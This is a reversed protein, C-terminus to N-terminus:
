RMQTTYQVKYVPTTPISSSGARQTTSHWKTHLEKTSTGHLIHHQRTHHQAPAFLTQATSSQATMEAQMPAVPHVKAFAHIVILLRHGPELDLLQSEATSNPWRKTPHSGRLQATHPLQELSPATSSSPRMELTSQNITWLVLKQVHDQPTFCGTKEGEALQTCICQGKFVLMTAMDVQSLVSDNSSLSEVPAAMISSDVSKSLHGPAALPRKSKIPPPDGASSKWENRSTSQLTFKLRTQPTWTNEFRASPLDHFYNTRFPLSANWLKKSLQHKNPLVGARSALGTHTINNFQWQKFDKTMSQASINNIVCHLCSGRAKCVHQVGVTLLEQIAISGEIHVSYTAAPDPGEDGTEGLEQKVLTNKALHMGSKGAPNPLRLLQPEWAHGQSVTVPGIAHMNAKRRSLILARDDTGGGNRLSTKRCRCWTRRKNPNIDRSM